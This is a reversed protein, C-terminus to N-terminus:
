LLDALSEQIEDTTLTGAAAKAKLTERRIEEADKPTPPAPTFTTGDFTGRRRIQRALPDSLAVRYIDLSAIPKGTLGPAADALYTDDMRAEDDASVIGVVKNTGKDVFVIM